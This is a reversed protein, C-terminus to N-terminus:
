TVEIKQVWFYSLIIGRLVTSELAGVCIDVDPIIHVFWRNEVAWFHGHGFVTNVISIDLVSLEVIDITEHLYKGVKFFIKRDAHATHSLNQYFPNHGGLVFKVPFELFIRTEM